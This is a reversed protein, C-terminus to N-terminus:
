RVTLLVSKSPTPGSPGDPCDLGSPLDKLQVVQRGARAAADRVIRRLQDRSTKRHNTIAILRGGAALVRVAGEVLRPYDRQVSFSGKKRTGFSPPDLVVIEFAEGKKAARALWDFADAKVFRHREAELGNLALNERARSLARASLDVNTVQRAGGAAAAVSFSGTYCFLNLVRGGVSLERLRARGDRQDVFLGTSLGDGLEVAFSLDRERVTLPNPAVIGAVPETPALADREQRRLDARPRRKAYVGRAGLELLARALEDERAAADDTSLSLTAWEDYVDVVVGPVDDASGNAWRFASAAGALSHRLCLADSLAARVRASSGLQEREHLWDDFAAPVPADFSLGVSPLALHEAHLMLRPAPPGGYLKDGAIPAGIAALQVRLQHTRGTRPTLEVLARGGVRQLVRYSARAIQGGQRVVRTKGGKVPLLRHELQGAPRLAHSAVLAVYRRGVEHREFDAAVRANLERRRTFALVGSAGKDLRQHVGLYADGELWSALRSVVDDAATADGGHVVLGPPKDVVLLEDNWLIRETRWPAINM